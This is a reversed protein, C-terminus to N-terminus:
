PSLIGRRVDEGLSEGQSDFMRLHLVYMGAAVRRGKSDLGDWTFSDLDPNRNFDRRWVAHGRMDQLTLRMGAASSPLAFTMSGYRTVRVIRSYISVINTVHLFAERSTVIGGENSVKCYYSTSDASLSIGTLALTDRTAGPLSDVSGNKNKRYWQLSLPGEGTVGIFFRASTGQTPLNLTVAAPQLTIVPPKKVVLRVTDSTVAGGANSVWVKYLGSDSPTVSALFLSDAPVPGSFKRLTDIVGGHLHLWVFTLPLTGTAQVGFIVPSGMAATKKEPPSIIRPPVLIRLNSPVSSVNALTNGVTSTITVTYTGANATTADQITFHAGTQGALAIGDKKWQYTLNQGSAVVTLVATGGEIIATDGSQTLVVPTTAVQVSLRMSAATSQSTNGMTSTVVVSYTGTDGLAVGNISYSPNTATPINVGTKKWQYTLNSGNASVAFAAIGGSVITTDHSQATLIPVGAVTVSLRMFATTAQSTNGVTSTVVVSYTGTDGLAVGNISYTSTAATPINVGAKKWQYTLNSGTAVVAFSATGGSVMTTDHSQATLVPIGAVTVSLKMSATTTQSTNGVTSTVVVSYTGTDGLAVANIPYSSSTATPIDIGAKKWQYTLGTGTAVVSFTAVGGSVMTTDHSQATLVPAGAVTVSLRMSATATQSTNGVNSSVVVSYTGTDGIAVGSISYSPNTATPIDIGAKKWQYTLGTGTAVVAFTAVGGSVITTDHSQATLIPVGAVTVSLRMFATTTQSTNGATSTVVVSYTGTDGIAVGNILYSPNTATSINVGDKQWQYTLNSGTAAVTFNTIGGSVITTDHSQATLIPVGAVTVSLRMFATTTQSTNGATSTIVVSYTGTDGLAVGNISYSPNTATPLGVGAKRWQYTLGTGTAVVAFTAVGGSVITTDHSQATLIPVGAVTVSLRM